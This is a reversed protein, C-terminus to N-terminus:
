DATNLLEGDADLEVHRWVGAEIAPLYRFRGPVHGPALEAVVSPVAALTEVTGVGVPEWLDLAIEHELLLHM